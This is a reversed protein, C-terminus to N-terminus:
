AAIDVIRMFEKWLPGLEHTNQPKEAGFEEILKKLFLEMSQRYCFIAAYIINKRDVIDTTAQDILIDGARKYGLPM